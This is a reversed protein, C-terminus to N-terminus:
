PNRWKLIQSKILNDSEPRNQYNFLDRYRNLFEQKAQDPSMCVMKGTYRYHLNELELELMIEDAQKVSPRLGASPVLGFAEEIVNLISLELQEIGELQRKIPRIIDGFYAEAADHLLGHRVDESDCLYSVYISHQAVSYFTQSHGGYRCTNALSHAIDSIHVDRSHMHLPNVWAGSYTMFLNENPPQNVTQM